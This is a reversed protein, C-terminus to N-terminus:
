QLSAPTGCQPCYQPDDVLDFFDYGCKQCPDHWDDDDWDEEEEDDWDDNSDDDSDNTSENDFKFTHIKDLDSRAASIYDEFVLALGEVSYIKRNDLVEKFDGIVTYKMTRLKQQECDLPV